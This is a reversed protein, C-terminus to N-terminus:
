TGKSNPVDYLLENIFLFIGAGIIFWFLSRNM